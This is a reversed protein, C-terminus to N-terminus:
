EGTYLTNTSTPWGLRLRRRLPDAEAPWSTPSAVIVEDVGEVHGDLFAVMARGQHRFHTSSQFLGWPGPAPLPFPAAITDSEQASCGTSCAILASDGFAYTQSTPVHLLRKNAISRNYGYGGTVGNYVPRLQGPVLSPCTFVKLNNEFYPTLIGRSPDVNTAFTVTDTSTRGFWRQVPWGLAANNSDATTISPPPLIGHASEYNHLALALQKLNNSCHMRAAAERVKQVAPLLLGILVAIIALVVLLEILTFARRPACLSRFV